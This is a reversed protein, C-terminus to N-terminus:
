KKVESIDKHLKIILDAATKKIKDEMKDVKENLFKWIIDKKGEQLHSVFIQKDKESLESFIADLISHHLTNDILNALHLKEEKSLDMQDLQTIVSEIEILHSYFFTM